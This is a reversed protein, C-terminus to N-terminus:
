DEEQPANPVEYNEWRIPTPRSPNTIWENLRHWQPMLKRWLAYGTLLLWPPGLIILVFATDENM